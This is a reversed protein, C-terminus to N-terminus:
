DFFSPVLVLIKSCGTMFWWAPQIFQKKHELSFFKIFIASLAPRLDSDSLLIKPLTKYSKKNLNRKKCFEFQIRKARDPMPANDLKLIELFLIAALLSCISTRAFAFAGWRAM